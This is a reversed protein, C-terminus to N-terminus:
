YDIRVVSDGNLVLTWVEGAKPLRYFLSTHCFTFEDHGTFYVTWTERNVEEITIRIKTM